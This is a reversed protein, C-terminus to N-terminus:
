RRTIDWGAMHVSECTCLLCKTFCIDRIKGTEDSKCKPIQVDAVVMKIKKNLSISVTGLVCLAPLFM